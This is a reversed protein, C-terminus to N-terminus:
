EIGKSTKIIKTLIRIISDNDNIMSIYESETIYNGKHIRNLWFSAENAEKLAISMKSIFDMRSQAYKSEAVNAGISTGSRLIQKSMVNEKKKDILYQYLHIIRDSFEETKIIIINEKKQLM